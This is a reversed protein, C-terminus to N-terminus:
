KPASKSFPLKRGKRNSAGGFFVFCMEDTTQEGLTVDRPPHNPNHPNSSSNDYIAVSDFRTGKKVKLPTEFLYTEQWNYDWDEIDIVTQTKNDPTTMTVKISKGLLHMHPTITFLECDQTAWLTGTLKHSKAGAPIRFFERFAGKGEGGVIAHNQLRRGEKSKSFYLGIRTKDRCLKGNRHYHVQLIVDAGKPLHYGYGNPLHRPMSGPAWGGLTGSPIIGIGMSVSYGPGKDLNPEGDHHPKKDANSERYFKEIKRATHTTDTFLLAHHVVTPDGPRIEVASVYVDEPLDTPMIFCRFIDHGTPGVQFEDPMTLVLDPKGMQWGEPFVATKPAVKPNGKPTGAKVWAALTDIEKQSMRRENHFKMGAVPKWPPMFGSETFTVMDEAWNYAQEFTMLSFPGVEGPRHCTQCRNQLIPLVDKYYTVPGTKKYDLEKTYIECGIPFTASVSVPRGSMIEGLAQDLDHASVRANKKLRAYYQDDIRGRYRIVLNSDLVFVEPTFKAKLGLSALFKRDRAVPFALDYERAFKKLEADTKIAPNTVVGILELGHPQLRKHIDSLPKSYACSVPCESSLFAIVIAKKGKQDHLSWITDQNTKFTLNPATKGVMERCPNKESYQDASIPSLISSQWLFLITLFPITRVTM